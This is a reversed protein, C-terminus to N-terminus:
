ARAFLWHVIWALVVVPTALVLMMGAGMALLFLWDRWTHRRPEAIQRTM